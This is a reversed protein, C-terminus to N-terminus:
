CASSFYKVFSAPETPARIMEILQVGVTEKLKPFDSCVSYIEAVQWRVVVRRFNHLWALLREIKWRRRCRRLPRGDQTVPRKRSPVVRHPAIMEIKRRKRLQADLKDSDYAKDGILRQPRETTLHHNLTRGVLTVEHPSASGTWLAIPLGAREAIAM